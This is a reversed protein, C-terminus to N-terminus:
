VHARGIKKAGCSPQPCNSVAQLGDGLVSQRLYLLLADADSVALDGWDPQGGDSQRALRSFLALVLAPENAGNSELLLVDEVGTLPSLAVPVGSVPLRIM